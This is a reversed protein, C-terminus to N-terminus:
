LQEWVAEYVLSYNKYRQNQIFIIFWCLEVASVRTAFWKRLLTKGNMYAIYVPTFLFFLPSLIEQLIVSPLCMRESLSILSPSKSVSWLKSNLVVTFLLTPPNWSIKDHFKSLFFSFIMDTWVVHKRKLFHSIRLWNRQWLFLAM